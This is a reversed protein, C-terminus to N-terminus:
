STTNPIEDKVRQQMQRNEEQLSRTEVYWALLALLWAGLLYGFMRPSIFFRTFCCIVYTVGILVLVFVLLSGAINRFYVSQLNMVYAKRFLKEQEPNEPTYVITKGSVYQTITPPDYDPNTQFM